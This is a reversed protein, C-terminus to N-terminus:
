HNDDAFYHAFAGHPEVKEGDDCTGHSASQDDVLHERMLPEGNGEVADMVALGVSHGHEVGEAGDQQKGHNEIGAIALLAGCVLAASLIFLILPHEGIQRADKDAQTTVEVSYM